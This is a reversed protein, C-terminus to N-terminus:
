EAIILEPQSVVCYTTGDIIKYDVYGMSLCLKQAKLEEKNNSDANLIFLVSFLAVVLFSVLFGFFVDIFLKSREDDWGYWGYKEM